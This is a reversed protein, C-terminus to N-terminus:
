VRERPGQVQLSAARSVTASYFQEDEDHVIRREDGKLRSLAPQQPHGREDM